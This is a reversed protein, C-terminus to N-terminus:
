MDGEPSELILTAQSCMDKSFTYANENDRSPFRPTFASDM